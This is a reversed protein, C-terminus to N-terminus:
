PATLKVYLGFLVLAVCTLQVLLNYRRRPNWSMLAGAVALFLAVAACAHFGPSNFMAFLLTSFVLTLGTVFNLPVRRLLSQM